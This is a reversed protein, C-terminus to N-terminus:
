SISSAFECLAANFEVPKEMMVMHGAGNILLLRSGTIQDAIGCSFDAPTMKDERGCIILVKTKIKSIEYNLDFSKCIYFDNYIVDIDAKSLSNKLAASLKPRNDPALSFKSIFAFVTETNTKLGTLLDSNVPMTIGGGVPVIASIAQPYLLAFKMTIAAGLSHGILLQNKLQLIDLLKKIWLCYQDINDAGHGTSAGHGPLDVAVINYQKQLRAYQYIWSTHDGGSGHIFILSQQHIGFNRSNIWCAIEIDEVDIKKIM